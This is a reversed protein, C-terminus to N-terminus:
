TVKFHKRTILMKVIKILGKSISIIEQNEEEKDINTVSIWDSWEWEM